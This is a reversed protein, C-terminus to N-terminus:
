GAVPTGLVETSSSWAARAIRSCASADTHYGSEKTTHQRIIIVDVDEERSSEVTLGGSERPKLFDLLGGGHKRPTQLRNRITSLHKELLGFPEKAIIVAYLYPYKTGQVDNLSVQFQIGLFDEPGDPFRIFARAANPTRKKGKGTMEFMPQIQCAPAEFDEIASLATELSDLQQRLAVPRWGRRTGTIWHPLILVAADAAFLIAENQLSHHTQLMFFCVAAVGGGVLLFVVVGSACTVDILAEDWSQVQSELRRVERFRDRTTKEWEGGSLRHTPTLDFGRALLMITGFLLLPLTAMLVPAPEFTICLLQIVLGAGILAGAWALRLGYDMKAFLYFQLLHRRERDPLLQPM